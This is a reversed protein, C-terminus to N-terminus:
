EKDNLKNLLKKGKKIQLSIIDLEEQLEIYRKEDVEEHLLKYISLRRKKLKSLLNKISKKKGSMVFNDISLFAVTKAIFNKFGM